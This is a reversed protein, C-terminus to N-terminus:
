SLSDNLPMRPTIGLSSANRRATELANRQRILIAAESCGCLDALESLSWGGPPTLRSASLVALTADIRLTVPLDALPHELSTPRKPM